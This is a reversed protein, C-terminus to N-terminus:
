LQYSMSSICQCSGIISFDFLSSNSASSTVESGRQFGAKVHHQSVKNVYFSRPYLAVGTTTNSKDNKITYSRIPIDRGNQFWYTFEFNFGAGICM